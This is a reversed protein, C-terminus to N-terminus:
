SVAERHIRMQQALAQYGLANGVEPSTPVVLHPISPALDRAFYYAGGGVLLVLALHAAISGQESSKWVQAVFTTIERGVGRLAEEIWENLQLPDVSKGHVFLPPYREGSVHARLLARWELMSLGRGCTGEITQNLTEAAVEIGLPTGKCLPISPVQGVATYLDTTRSGIDVVAQPVQEHRGYAILAGAGEMIVQMVHVVAVRPVGNLMFTHEGELNRRVQQRTTENYTEIPIGTVLHLEFAADPILTGAATLLLQRARVSWYRSIDGSATTASKGQTLALGGVFCEAGQYQLVFEGEQLVEAPQNVQATMGRFRALEALSGWGVASPLALWRLHETTPSLLAVSTEGNGYDFGIDYHASM